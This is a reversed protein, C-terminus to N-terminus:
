YRKQGSPRNVPFVKKNRPPRVLGKSRRLRQREGRGVGGGGVRGLDGGGGLVDKEQLSGEIGIRVGKKYWDQHWQHRM